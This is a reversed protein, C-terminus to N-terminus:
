HSTEPKSSGDDNGLIDRIIEEMSIGSHMALAMDTLLNKEISYKVEDRFSGFSGEVTEAEVHESHQGPSQLDEELSAAEKKDHLRQVLARWDIVGKTESSDENISDTFTGDEKDENGTYSDALQRLEQLKQLEEQSLRKMNIISNDKKDSSRPEENDNQKLPPSQVANSSTVRSAQLEELLQQIRYLKNSLTADEADTKKLPVCVVQQVSVIVLCACLLIKCM